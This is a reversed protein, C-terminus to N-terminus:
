SALARYDYVKPMSLHSEWRLRYRTYFPPFCSMVEGTIFHLLLYDLILVDRDRM